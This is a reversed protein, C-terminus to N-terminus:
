QKIGLYGCIATFILAIVTGVGKMKAIDTSNKFSRGNQIKMQEVIADIKVALTENTIRAMM